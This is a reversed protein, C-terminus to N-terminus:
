LLIERCNKLKERILERGGKKKNKKTWNKPSPKPEASKLIKHQEKAKGATQLLVPFVFEFKGGFTSVKM